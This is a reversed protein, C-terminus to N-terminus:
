HIDATYSDQEGVHGDPRGHVNQEEVYASRSFDNKEGDRAAIGWDGLSVQFRDLQMFYATISTTPDWPNNHGTAKNEHKQVTTM